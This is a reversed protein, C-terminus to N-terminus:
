ELLNLRMRATLIIQSAKLNAPLRLAQRRAHRVVRAPTHWIFWRLAKHKARSLPGTLCLRQFWRVM